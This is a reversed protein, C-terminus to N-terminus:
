SKKRPAFTTVRTESSLVSIFGTMIGVGVTFRAHEAEAEDTVESCSVHIGTEAPCCSPMGPVEYGPGLARGVIKRLFRSDPLRLAAASVLKLM